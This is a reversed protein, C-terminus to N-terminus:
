SPSLPSTLLARAAPAREQGDRHSSSLVACTARPLGCLRGVVRFKPVHVVREVRRRVKASFGKSGRGGRVGDQKTEGDDRADVGEADMSIVSTYQLFESQRTATAM